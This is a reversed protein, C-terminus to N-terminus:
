NLINEVWHANIADAHLVKQLHSNGQKQLSLIYVLKPICAFHLVCAFQKTARHQFTTHWFNDEILKVFSKKPITRDKELAVTQM